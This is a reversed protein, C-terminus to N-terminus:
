NELRKTLDAAVGAADPELSVVQRVVAELEGSVDNKKVQLVLSVERGLLYDKKLELATGADVSLQKLGLLDMAERGFLVAPLNAFGDDLRARVMLFSRAKESGCAPCKGGGPRGGCDACKPIVAASRLEIVKATVLATTGDALESLLKRPYLEALIEQTSALSHGKPSLVVHGTWGAHAEVESNASSKVYAGEVKVADGAVARELCRANEDWAVFRVSAPGDSLTCDCVLGKEQTGKKTVRVFENAKGVRMVRGYFDADQMGAALASLRVPKKQPVPLESFEGQVIGIRTLMSTHLELPSVSKVYAGRVEVVDGRELGDKEVLDVDNGWLVLTAEGTSDKVIVNCVKGQREGGKGDPKSFRKPAFAHFVRARVNVSAGPTTKARSLDDFVAAKESAPKIGSEEAIIQVAAERTLLGAFRDQRSGVEKELREAQWGTKELVENELSAGAM